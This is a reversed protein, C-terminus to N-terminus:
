NGYNGWKVKKKEPKNLLSPGQDILSEFVGQFLCIVNRLIQSGVSATKVEPFKPTWALILEISNQIIPKHDDNLNKNLIVLVDDLDQRTVPRVENKLRPLIQDQIVKKLSTKYSSTVRMKSLTAKMGVKVGMKILSCQASPPIFGNLTSCGTSLLLVLVLIPILLMQYVKSM